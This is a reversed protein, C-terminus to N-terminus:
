EREEAPASAIIARRVPGNRAVYHQVFLNFAEAPMVIRALVPNMLDVSTVNLADDIKWTEPLVLSFDIVVETGTNLSQAHNVYTGRAIEPTIARDPIRVLVAGDPEVKIEPEQKPEAM